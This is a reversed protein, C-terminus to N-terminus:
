RVGFVGRVNLFFSGVNWGGRNCGPQAYGYGPQVYEGQGQIQGEDTPVYDQQEYNSRRAYGSQIYAPQVYAYRPPDAVWVQVARTGYQPPVYYNAWYGERICRGCSYLPAYVWRSEYHGCCVLVTQYRVEYHGDCATAQAATGCGLLLVVVFLVSLFLSRM